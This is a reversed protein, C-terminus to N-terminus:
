CTGHEGRTATLCVIRSGADSAAALLGGAVFSEDDPHAWVALVTGLREAGSAAKAAFRNASRFHGSPAGAASHRLLRKDINMDNGATAAREIRSPPEDCM